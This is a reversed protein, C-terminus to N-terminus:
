GAHMSQPSVIRRRRLRFEEILIPPVPTRLDDWMQLCALLVLSNIIYCLDRTWPYKFLLRKLKLSIEFLSLVAQYTVIQDLFEGWVITSEHQHSYFKHFIGTSSTNWKWLNVLAIERHSPNLGPVRLSELQLQLTHVFKTTQFVQVSDNSCKIRCLAM